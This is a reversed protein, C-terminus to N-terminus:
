DLDDGTQSAVVPATANWGRQLREVALNAKASSGLKTALTSRIAKWVDDTIDSESLEVVSQVQAAAAAALKAEEEEKAKAIDEETPPTIMATLALATESPEIAERISKSDAVVKGKKLLKIHSPKLYQFANRLPLDSSSDSNISQILNAKVTYVTDLSSVQLTSSFKYPAKIGKITVSISPSSSSSSAQNSETASASLSQQAIRTKPM